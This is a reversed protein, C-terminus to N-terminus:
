LPGDDYSQLMNVYCASAAPVGIAVTWRNIGERNTLRRCLVELSHPTDDCNDTDVKRDNPEECTDCPENEVKVHM